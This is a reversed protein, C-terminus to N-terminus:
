VIGDDIGFALSNPKTCRFILPSQPIQTPLSISDPVRDVIRIFSIEIPTLDRFNGLVLTGTRELRIPLHNIPIYIDLGTRYWSAAVQEWTEFKSFSDCSAASERLIIDFEQSKAISKLQIHFYSNRFRTLNVCPTSGFSTFFLGRFHDPQLYISTPTIQLNMEIAGHDFRMSNKSLTSNRFDEITINGNNGVAYPKPFISTPPNPKPIPISPLEFRSNKCYFRL